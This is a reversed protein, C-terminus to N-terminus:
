KGLDIKTIKINSFEDSDTQEAAFYKQIFKDYKNCTYNKEDAKKGSRREINNIQELNKNIEDMRSQTKVDISDIRSHFNNKSNLFDTNHFITSLKKYQKNFEKNSNILSERINQNELIEERYKMWKKVRTEQNEM